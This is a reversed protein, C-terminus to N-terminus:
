LRAHGPRNTRCKGGYEVHDEFVSNFHRDAGSDLDFPHCQEWDTVTGARTHAVQLPWLSNGYWGFGINNKLVNGRTEGIPQNPPCVKGGAADAGSLARGAQNVFVANEMGSIVNHLLKNNPSVLYVGAQENNDADEQGRVCQICTCARLRETTNTLRWGAPVSADTVNKLLRSEAVHAECLIVSHNLVNDYEAGNQMYVSAGKHNYIVADSVTSEHTGHLTIAKNASETVVVGELRCAPCAGLLHLHLCYEGVILRGCNRVHVHSMTMLGGHRQSTVIGQGGYQPRLDHWADARDRWYYPGTIEVSRKLNSVEAYKRLGDCDDCAHHTRVLAAALGVTCSGAGPAVSAVYAESASSRDHWAGHGTPGLVIWDGVEWGDCREVQISTASATAEAALWSWSTKPAGFIRTTGYSTLQGRELCRSKAATGDQMWYCDHHDLYLTVNSAPSAESGVLLSGSKAVLIFATHVYVHSLIQLTGEVTIGESCETLSRGALTLTQGTGLVCRPGPLFSVPPPRPPSPPPTPPPVQPPRPPAVPGLVRVEYLSYGWRTNPVELSLRVHRAVVGQPLAVVDTRAAGADVHRTQEAWQVGDDSTEVSYSHASAREWVLAIRCLATPGGLDFAVWAHDDAPLTTWGSAWRTDGHGDVLKWPAFRESLTHSATLQVLNGAAHDVMAAADFVCRPAPPPAPPNPPDPKPSPPPAPPPPCPPPLPPMPPPMPPEPPPASGAPHVSIEYIKIGWINLRERMILRLFRATAGVRFSARDDWWSVATSWTPSNPSVPNTRRMAMAWASGDESTEIDYIYASAGEFKVRVMCVSVIARLDLTIVMSTQGNVFESTGWLNRWNGDVLNAAVGGINAGKGSNGSVQASVVAGAAHNVDLRPFNCIGPPPSPPAPPSPAAAPPSPPCPPKPPPSPPPSPPPPSPPSPPPSPPPPSPSPPSPPPPSPPPITGIPASPPSPPSPPPPSPPSAPCVSSRMVGNPQMVQWTESVVNGAGHGVGSGPDAGEVDDRFQFALNGNVYLRDDDDGVNVVVSIGDALTPPALPLAFVTPWTMSDQPPDGIVKFYLPLAGSKATSKSTDPDSAYLLQVGCATTHISLQTSPAPPMSPPAPPSPPPPPPYQQTVIVNGSEDVSVLTSSDHLGKGQRNEGVYAASCCHPDPEDPARCCRRIECLAPLVLRHACDELSCCTCVMGAAATDTAADCEIPVLKQLDELAVVAGPQVLRQAATGRLPLLLLLFQPPALRLRM